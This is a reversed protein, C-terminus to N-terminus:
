INGADNESVYTFDLIGEEKGCLVPKNANPQPSRCLETAINGCIVLAAKECLFCKSDETFFELGKCVKKLRKFLSYIFLFILFCSLVFRRALFIINSSPVAPLDWCSPMVAAVFLVLDNWKGRRLHFSPLYTMDSIDNALLVTMFM